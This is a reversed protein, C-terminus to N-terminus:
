VGRGFSGEEYGFMKEIRKFQKDAQDFIAAKQKETMDLDDIQNFAVQAALLIQRQAEQKPTNM